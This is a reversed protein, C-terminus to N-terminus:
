AVYELWGWRDETEGSFLGFFAEQIATTIPGRKGSGIPIQDVSRIASVEAATGTFFLEDALYLSERPLNQERVEYGLQHAIKMIADRTIGPLLAATIPPTYVIDDRILFLNEGSGESINGDVGLAIGEVYGHRNAEMVILQSSLYNGGAKAMAPITNPAVRSWSSVAVDIGNELADAGLYAGWEFGAVMIEVPNKLPFVGIEGYGRWVLPRLYANTLGNDRIVTKCAANIDDVSYPLEMRYIKASDFLRRTHPTLRFIAPGKPTQYCRIGEFVSSGYHLAHSMVHVTANEWPILEGNFWIYKTPTIPM